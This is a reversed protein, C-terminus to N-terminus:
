YFKGTSGANRQGIDSNNSGITQCNRIVFHKTTYHIRIAAEDSDSAPQIWLNEIIYPNNKTGSGAFGLSEFGDDTNIYIPDHSVLNSTVAEM